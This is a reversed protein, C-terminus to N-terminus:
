PVVPDLSIQIPLDSSFLYFLHLMIKMKYFNGTFTILNLGCYSNDSAFIITVVAGYAGCKADSNHDFNMEM